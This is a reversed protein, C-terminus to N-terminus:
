IVNFPRTANVCGEIILAQEAIPHWLAEALEEFARILFYATFGGAISSSFSLNFNIGVIRLPTPQM